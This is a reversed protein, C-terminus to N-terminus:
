LGLNIRDRSSDQKKQTKTQKFSNFNYSLGLWIMRSKNHSFNDLTFISNSSHIEWKKTAFVDTVSASLTLSRKLFSQRIGFNMYHDFATTFQPYYQPSSLFYQIQIDTSKSPLFNLTINSNNSWGRNDIDIGEFDGKTDTFFTNSSLSANFWKAPHIKLSIDLGAKIDSTCAVYTSLLIDEGTLKSVQTIYGKTHSFYIDAFADFWAVSGSYSLDLNDAKEPNLEPSGQTFTKADVMSMYPNLQPYSPRGIRRGYALSMVHQPALKVKGSISPAIFLNGKTKSLSARESHLKVISYEARLGASYSFRSYEVSTFLAYLAPVYEQHKLEASLEPSLVWDEGSLTYFDSCQANQRYTMKAGLDLTGPNFTLKVDGQISTILPSGGSDSKAIQKGELYYFSPRHGWIKSVNASITFSNSSWKHKWSAKADLNERNFTIDSNRNELNQIEGVMYTNHFDQKTNYRPLLFKVDVAFTNNKNAKVSAGANFEANLTTKNSIFRQAISNGSSTFERFLSGKIIDDEYKVNAGLKWSVKPSNGSVAIVGNTFHNFGYNASVIGSIGSESTKKSVINIIGASGESDYRADPNTIVEVSKVNAAPISELDTVATPVGDILILVSSKGRITIGKDATVNVASASSLLDLVSGKAGSIDKDSDLTTRDRVSHRFVYDVIIADELATMDAELIITGIDQQSSGQNIIKEFKFYGLFEVSLMYEGPVTKIKFKGEENTISYTATASDKNKLTVIAYQLPDGEKDIVVGCIEGTQAFASLSLVTVIALLIFRKM